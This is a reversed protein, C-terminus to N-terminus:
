MVMGPIDKNKLTNYIAASYSLTKYLHGINMSVFTM